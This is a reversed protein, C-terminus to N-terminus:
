SIVPLHLAVELPKHGNMGYKIRHEVGCLAGLDLVLKGWIIEFIMTDIEVRDFVVDYRFRYQAVLQDSELVAGISNYAVRYRDIRWYVGPIKEAKIKHEYKWIITLRRRVLWGDSSQAFHEFNQFLM